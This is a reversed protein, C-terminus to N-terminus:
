DFLGEEEHSVASRTAETVRETRHLGEAIVALSEQPLQPTMDALKRLARATKRLHNAVAEASSDM